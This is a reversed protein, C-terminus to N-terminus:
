MVPLVISSDGHSFAPSDIADENFNSATVLFEGMVKKTEELTRHQKDLADQITDIGDRISFMEANNGGVDVNNFSSANSDMRYSPSSYRSLVDSPSPSDNRSNSTFLSPSHTAASSQHNVGNSSAMRKPRRKKSSSAANSSSLQPSDVTISPSRFSLNKEMTSSYLFKQYLKDVKAKAASNIKSSPTKNLKPSSGYEGTSISTADSTAIGSLVALDDSQQHKQAQASPNRRFKRIRAEAAEARAEAESVRQRLKHLESKTKEGESEMMHLVKVAEAVNQRMKEDGGQDRRQPSLPSLSGGGTSNSQADERYYEDRRSSQELKEKQINELFEGQEQVIQSLVLCKKRELKLQHLLSEVELAKEVALPDAQSGLDSVSSKVGRGGNLAKGSPTKSAAKKKTKPTSLIQLPVLRIPRDSPVEVVFEENESSAKKGHGLRKSSKSKKARKGGTKKGTSKPQALRELKPTTSTSSSLAKTKKRGRKSSPTLSPLSTSLRHRQYKEREREREKKRAAKAEKKLLSQHYDSHISHFKVMRKSSLSQRILYSWEYDLESAYDQVVSLM